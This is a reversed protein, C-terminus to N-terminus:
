PAVASTSAASCSWSAVPREGSDTMESEVLRALLVLSKQWGLCCMESPIIASVGKQLANREAGCMVKKLLITTIMEGQLNSDDFVGTYRLRM